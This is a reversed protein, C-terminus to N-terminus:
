PAKSLFPRYVESADLGVVVGKPGVKNAALFV